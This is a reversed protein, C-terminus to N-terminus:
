PAIIAQYAVVTGRTPATVNFPRGWDLFVVRESQKGTDTTESQPLHSAGPALVLSEHLQTGSGSTTTAEWSLVDALGGALLEHKLTVPAVDLPLISAPLAAITEETALDTYEATGKAVEIWHDGARKAAAAPLGILRTLGASNGSVFASQPTLRIAAVASGQTITEAASSTGVQSAIREAVHHASGNYGTVVIRVAGAQTISREAGSVLATVAPSTTPTRAVPGASAV